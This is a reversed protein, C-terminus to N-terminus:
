SIRKRIRSLAQPTVGIYSAIHKLPIEKILEPREIFLDLYRQEATKTLLASERKSKILFLQEANKRGIENGSQTENYILELDKKSISWLLCPTIAEVTDNSPSATLFSDYASIFAGQFVFGVTIEKEIGPYYLRIIGSDVFSLYHETDGANLIKEKKGYKRAILKSKFLKWEIASLTTFQNLFTRIHELQNNM